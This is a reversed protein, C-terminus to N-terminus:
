KLRARAEELVRGSPIAQVSGARLEQYRREAEEAWTLVSEQDESGELSLLLVRALEVREKAAIKLAEEELAKVIDAM